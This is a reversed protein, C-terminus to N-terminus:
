RYSYKEPLLQERSNKIQQPMTIISILDTNGQTRSLINGWNARVRVVSKDIKTRRLEARVSPFPEFGICYGTITAKSPPGNEPEILLRPEAAL